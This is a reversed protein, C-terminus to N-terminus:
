LRQLLTPQYAVMRWAGSQRAWVTLTKNDLRRPTGRSTLDTIVHSFVLATDGLLKVAREKVEMAHYVFVGDKMGQIYSAKGDQLGSSHTYTLDDSFLTDLTDWDRARMATFRRDELAEIFTGTVEVDM